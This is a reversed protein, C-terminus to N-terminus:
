WVSGSTTTTAKGYAQIPDNSGCTADAYAEDYFSLVVGPELMTVSDSNSKPESDTDETFSGSVSAQASAEDNAVGSVRALADAYASSGSPNGTGRIYVRTYAYLSYSWQYDGAEWVSIDFGGEDYDYDFTHSPGAQAVVYTDALSTAAMLLTVVLTICALHSTRM